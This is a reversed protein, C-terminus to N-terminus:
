VLRCWKRATNNRCVCAWILGFRNSESAHYSHQMWSWESLVVLCILSASLVVLWGVLCVLLCLRTDWWCSFKSRQSKPVPKVPGFCVLTRPRFERYRHHSDWCGCREGTTGPLASGWRFGAWPAPALQRVPIPSGASSKSLLESYIFEVWRQTVNIHPPFYLVLLHCTHM